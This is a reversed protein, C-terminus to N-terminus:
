YEVVNLNKSGTGYHIAAVQGTYLEDGNIEHAGDYPPLPISESDAGSGLELLIETDSVNYFGAFIRKHNAAVVPTTSTGVIVQSHTASTARRPRSSGRRM